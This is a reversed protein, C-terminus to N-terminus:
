MLFETAESSSCRTRPLRSADIITNKKMRSQRVTRILKMAMGVDIMEVTAEYGAGEAVTAEFPYLNVVVLDIPPIDLEAITAMHAEVDRRALIGGHVAPHLTKVRGGLIEPFGTIEEVSHVPIGADDIARATGGSAILEVGAAHLEKAFEVLGTKDSVSLLARVPSM